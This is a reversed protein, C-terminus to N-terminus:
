QQWSGSYACYNLAPMIHQSMDHWFLDGFYLDQWFLSLIIASALLIVM